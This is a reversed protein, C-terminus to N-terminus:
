DGLYKSAEKISLKAMQDHYKEIFAKVWIPNTKSYDRLSWGIAKNIFFEDSNLNNVIIKELLQQNTKEKRLLQHDIAVRKLWIDENLSWELMLDDVRKDKLGITGIIIDLSDTVDWWQKTLLYQKLKDIDEYVLFVQLAKLYDCGFYQFERYEDQFCLDLLAFDIRKNKKEAKLFDRYLKKRKPTPIGYFSFKNQMYKAMKLANESDKNADFLQKIM